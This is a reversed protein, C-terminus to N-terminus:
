PSSEQGSSYIPLMGPEPENSTDSLSMDEVLMSKPSAGVRPPATGVRPAAGWGRDVVTPM